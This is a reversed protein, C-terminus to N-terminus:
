IKNYETIAWIVFPSLVVAIISGFIITYITYFTAPNAGNERKFRRKESQTM